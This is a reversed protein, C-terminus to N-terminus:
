EESDGESEPDWYMVQGDECGKVRYAGSATRVGHSRASVAEDTFVPRPDGENPALVLPIVPKYMYCSIVAPTKYDISSSFMDIGACENRPQWRGKTEYWRARHECRHCLACLSRPQEKVKKKRPM